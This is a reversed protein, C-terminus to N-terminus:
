EKNKKSSIKDGIITNSKNLDIELIQSKFGLNGGKVINVNGTIRIRNEIPFFLALDSKIIEQNHEFFVNGKAIIKKLNSFKQNNDYGQKGFLLEMEDSKFTMNNYNLIVNKTLSILGSKQDFTANESSILFEKNAVEGFLRNTAIVLLSLTFLFICFYYYSRFLNSKELMKFIKNM